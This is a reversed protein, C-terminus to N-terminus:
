QLPNILFKGLNKLIDDLNKLQFLDSCFAEGGPVRRLYWLLHKRFNKLGSHEGYFAVHREMHQCIVRCREEASPEGPDPLGQLVAHIRAPLWPNGLCARGIMVGDVGTQAMVSRAKEPSDIDGNALVPISVAAKVRGVTDYEATGSYGQQRTRGHVTVLSIGLEEALKAIHVANISSSDWGTRMKLVVPVSSAECVARLVSEAQREDRLLASGCDTKCIKKAPCGMNIDIVEAGRIEVFRVAERMWDPNAGLLQVVHPSSDRGFSVRLESKGSRLLDPNASVMEGETCCPCLSAITERFPLDTVGAMPAVFVQSPIQFRGVSLAM